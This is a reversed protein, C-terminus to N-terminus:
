EKKPYFHCLFEPPLHHETKDSLDEIIVSDIGRTMGNYMFNHIKYLHDFDLAFQKRTNEDGNYKFQVERVSDFMIDHASKEIGM